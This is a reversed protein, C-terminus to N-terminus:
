FFYLLHMHQQLSCRCREKETHWRMFGRGINEMRFFMQSRETSSLLEKGEYIKEIREKLSRYQMESIVLDVISEYSRGHFSGMSEEMVFVGSRRPQYRPQLRMEKELFKFQTDQIFFTTM